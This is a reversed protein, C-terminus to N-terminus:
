SGSQQQSQQNADQMSQSVADESGASSPSSAQEQQQQQQEVEQNPQNNGDLTAQQEAQVPNNQNDATFVMEDTLAQNDSADDSSDQSPSDTASEDAVGGSISDDNITSADDNSVTAFILSSADDNSITMFDSSADENSVMGFSAMMMMPPGADDDDLISVTIAHESTASAGSTSHVTLYILDSITVTENPDSNEPHLVQQYQALWLTDNAAGYLSAGQDVYIAFIVDNTGDERGVVMNDDTGQYLLISINNSSLLGSDIGIGSTPFPSGDQQTLAINSVYGTGFPVYYEFIGQATHAQGLAPSLGNATELAGFVSPLGGAVDNTGSDIGATEDHTITMGGDGIVPQTPSYNFSTSSIASDGNSLETTVATVTASFDATQASSTRFSLLDDNIITATPDNLTLTWTQGSIDVLADVHGDQNNALLRITSGDTVLVGDHYLQAGLVTGQLTITISTFSQSTDADIQSLDIPVSYEVQLTSAGDGGTHDFNVGNLNYPITTLLTGNKDIVVFGEFDTGTVTSSRSAYFLHTRPDYILGTLNVLENEANADNNNLLIATNDAFNLKVLGGEKGAVPVRTNSIAYAQGFEDFVIDGGNFDYIPTGALNTITFPGYHFDPTAFANIANINNYATVTETVIDFTYLYETGQDNYYAMGALQPHTPTIATSSITVFSNTGTDFYGYETPQTELAYVRTGTLNSAIQGHDIFSSNSIAGLLTLDATYDVHNILVSYMNSGDGANFAIKSDALFNTSYLRLGGETNGFVAPDVVAALDITMTAINSSDTGDSVTFNFAAYDQQNLGVGPTAFDDNGAEHLDGTFRLNGDVQNIPIEQGATVAVWSVGNYFELVGDSPLTEIKLTEVADGPDSESFNFDSLGFVITSDETGSVSSASAEPPTNPPIVPGTSSGGDLGTSVAGTMLVDADIDAEVGEGEEGDTGQDGGLNKTQNEDNFNYEPIVGPISDFTQYFENLPVDLALNIASSKYELMVFSHTANEEPMMQEQIFALNVAQLVSESFGAYPQTSQKGTDTDLQNDTSTFLQLHPDFPLTFNILLPFPNDHFLNQYPDLRMLHNALTYKAVVEPSQTELSNTQENNNEIKSASTLDLQATTAKSM